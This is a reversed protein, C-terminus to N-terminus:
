PRSLTTSMQASRMAHPESPMPSSPVAGLIYDGPITDLRMIEGGHAAAFAKAEPESVFPVAEPAGMGGAQSSGLVFWADGAAIWTSDDPREWSTDSMDNVYFAVVNKPEEPLLTFAIGDRVSSFWLPPSGDDLFIQAKPGPHDAVVMQCYRGVADRDLPAPDPSTALERGDGCATLLVAPLLTAVILSKM